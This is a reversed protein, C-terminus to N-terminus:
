VDDPHKLKTIDIVFTSSSEVAIPWTTCVHQFSSSVVAIWNCFIKTSELYRNDNYVAPITNSFGIITSNFSPANM